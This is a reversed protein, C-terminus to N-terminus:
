LLVFFLIISNIFILFFILVYYLLLCIEFSINEFDGAAAIVADMETGSVQVGDALLALAM